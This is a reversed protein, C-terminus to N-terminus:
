QGFMELLLPNIEAWVPLLVSGGSPTTYPEVRAGDLVRLDPGAAAGRLLTPALRILQVLTVDTAVSARVAALLAPARLWAGPQLLRQLFARMVLQQREARQLDSSGHRIRAYILAREGDLHQPGAEFEVTMVGYDATPYEYDILPRPVDLDIGGVSDVIRVFGAFDLRVYGHVDVGFNQRVVAMAAAPGSGAQAAEAFFHATNIRGQSGDSLTVYLDRPISLAGVTGRAPDLTTLILTDTRSVATKEEPRRDLGLLLLNTRAPPFVFLGLLVLALLVAVGAALGLWGGRLAARLKPRRSLPPPPAPPVPVSVPSPVTPATDTM